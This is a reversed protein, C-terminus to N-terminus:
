TSMGALQQRLQEVEQGLDALFSPNAAVQKALPERV